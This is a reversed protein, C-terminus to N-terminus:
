YSLTLITEGQINYRKLTASQNGWHVIAQPISFENSEYSKTPSSKHSSLSGQWSDVFSAQSLSIM